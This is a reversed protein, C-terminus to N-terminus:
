HEREARCGISFVVGSHAKFMKLEVELLVSCACVLSFRRLPRRQQKAPKM